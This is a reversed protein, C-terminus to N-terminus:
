PAMNGLEKVRTRELAKPNEGQRGTDSQPVTQTVQLKSTKGPLTPDTVEARVLRTESSPTHPFPNEQEWRRGAKGPVVLARYV